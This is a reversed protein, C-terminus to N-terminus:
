LEDKKEKKAKKRAEREAKKKAKNAKKRAALVSKKLGLGAAKIKEVADDKDQMLKKYQAQLKEVEDKFLKDAAAIEKEGEKIEKKLESLEMANLDDIEKKKEDDCLDINAPSCGPKLTSAFKELDKYTRGGSYDELASPDGHKLTPYGKVGVTSCLDKGAATCDVDAILISEHDKYKKMLKDWDPKM